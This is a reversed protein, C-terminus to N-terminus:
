HRNAPIARTAVWIDIRKAGAKKLVRACEGVTTGTTMVDDVLAVHLGTLRPGHWSFAGRLNRRRHSRTLGSQARTHRARRLASAALPISLLKGAYSSLEYAQNFGRKMLRLMHLPVPILLEPFPQDAAVVCECMLHSLIRGAALQRRFKFSQVLRDAPFQYQLPCLTRTFPPRKQICAACIKDVPSSLPLACQLCHSGPWPLETRCPECICIAVSPGGCLLCRPPLLFDLTKSWCNSDVQISFEPQCTAVRTAHKMRAPGNGYGAFGKPSTGAM